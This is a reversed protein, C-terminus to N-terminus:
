PFRITVTFLNGDRDNQFDIQEHASLARRIGSGIGRYPLIRTAFSALIPNRMNSNGNKINEVTLNNPLHGPSILEIRDQFVLIRIAASIFYDRHILANAILEELVIRPVIEEGVSNFSQEGQVHRINASVFSISEAFVDGIRGVIERSDLYNEVEQCNGPFAVAKIVFAPLLLAPNKAFLLVAATCLQGDRLLNMNELLQGLDSEDATEAFEKELFRFFYSSEVDSITSGAVPVEDGHVLRAAQFMRQMEEVATVKRKDAGNKVIITGKTTYPKRIGDAVSVIIVLQEEV